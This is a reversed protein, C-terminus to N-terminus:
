LKYKYGCDAIQIIGKRTLAFFASFCLVKVFM